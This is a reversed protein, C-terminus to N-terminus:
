MTMGYVITIDYLLSYLGDSIGKVLKCNRKFGVWEMVLGNTPLLSVKVHEQKQLFIVSLSANEM